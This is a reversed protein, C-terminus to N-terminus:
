RETTRDPRRGLRLPINHSGMRYGELDLTVFLFGAAKITRVVEDRRALLRDFDDASIEIRALDGGQDRVRVQRQFGLTRIAAEAREVRRLARETVPVGYAIRSALCAAAPKDWTPLGLARSLSRIEAKSLGAEVLPFKAGRRLAAAQGPRHDGLDDVNVGLLVESDATEPLALLAEMLSEKCFFCRDAANRTYRPDELETTAVIRYPIGFARAFARADELESRALSPSDATIAVARNGLVRHAVFALFSSDVGGSFAVVAGPLGSLLGDLRDLKPSAPSDVVTLM